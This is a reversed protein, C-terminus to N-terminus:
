TYKQPRAAELWLDEDKRSSSSSSFNVSRGDSNENYSNKIMSSVVDILINPDKTINKCINNVQSDELDSNTNLISAFKKLSDESFVGKRGAVSAVKELVVKEESTKTLEKKLRMNDENLKMNRDQLESIQVLASKVFNIIQSDEM